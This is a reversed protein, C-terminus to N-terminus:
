CSIVMEGVQISSRGQQKEMCLQSFFIRYLCPTVELGQGTLPLYKGVTSSDMGKVSLILWWGGFPPMERCPQFVNGATLPYAGGGVVVM